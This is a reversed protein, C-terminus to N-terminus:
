DDYEVDSSLIAGSVADIEYEYEMQGKDFEVEYVMRGDERDLKVKMKTVQSESLGASSLALTKAKEEGIYQGESTQQSSQGSKDNSSTKNNPISYYEIEHDYEYIKGSIADIEYDYETNGSYFEIDYVIHGDDYDLHAKIFTVQSKNLKAHKLAISKAKTESIYKGANSTSSSNSPITYYEIDRDYEYIKGSIADIEYDYETNGSYFEVDYVIHGDDYDLHTKIFTVQSESLKAHKLAISKAKTEGIYQDSPSAASVAFVTSSLLTAVVIMVACIVAVVKGKQKTDMITFLRKKMSNSRGYFYTTLVPTMIAKTGVFGIITEGYEKRRETDNGAVVSEDCAAECDTQIANSMLYVFPNFWHMTSVLLVLLNIWLDRHKYHTLEHKFIYKLDDTSIEVEPLLITPKRFGILMPSSIFTCSYVAIDKDNLEMHNLVSQFVSLVQRNDVKTSWRHISLVFKRYTWLHFLLVISMGIVWVVFLINTYTIRPNEEIFRSTNKLVNSTDQSLISEEEVIDFNADTNEFLIPIQISEFPTSVNPRFPILLGILVVLWIYYRFAASVHHTLVKNLFLILLIIVSMTISVTLLSTFFFNM